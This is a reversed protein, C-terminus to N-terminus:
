GLGLGLWSFSNLYAAEAAPMRARETAYSFIWAGYAIEGGIGLAM